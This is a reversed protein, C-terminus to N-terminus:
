DENLQQVMQGLEKIKQNLTEINQMNQESLELTNQANATVEESVAGVNSISSIIEVKVSQIQKLADAISQCENKMELSSNRVESFADATNNVIENQNRFIENLENMDSSVNQSSVTIASIEDKIQKLSDKTQESLNRIEDAVVAFGRGSEGARAAEISANLSLLNTQSAINEIIKMINEINGIKETLTGMASMTSVSTTLTKESASRLNTMNQNGSAIVQDQHEVSVKFEEVTESIHDLDTSMHDLQTMESQVTEAASDSGACVQNMAEKTSVSSVALESTMQVLSEVENEVQGTLECIKSLMGETHQKEMEIAEIRRSTMKTDIYSTILGYFSTLVIVALQIETDTVFDPDSGKGGIFGTVAYALNFLVACGSYIGTYKWNHFLPFIMLFPIIYAYTALTNGTFLVFVYLIMYGLPLFYKTLKNDPKKIEYITNVVAPVLVIASFVTLYGVTRRGKVTEIIYAIVLIVAILLYSLAVARNAMKIESVEKNNHKM